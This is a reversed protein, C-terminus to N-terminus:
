HGVVQLIKLYTLLMGGDQRNLNAYYAKNVTKM